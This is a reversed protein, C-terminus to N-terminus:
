ASPVDGERGTRRAQVRDNASKQGTALLHSLIEARKAKAYDKFEKLKERSLTRRRSSGRKSPAYGKRIADGLNFTM